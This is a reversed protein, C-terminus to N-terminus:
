APNGPAAELLKAVDLWSGDAFALRPATDQFDRFTISGGASGFSVRVDNGDRVATVEDRAIGEGLVVQGKHMMRSPGDQVFKIFKGDEILPKFSTVKVGSLDGAIIDDGDGKNYEIRYGYDAEPLLNITDNGTGGNFKSRFGGSVTLVDDGAGGFLQARGHAIITDNGDGGDAFGSAGLGGAVIEIHDDGDEGYVHGRDMVLFRDDGTGGYARGGNLLTFQDKGDGGRATGNYILALDDGEGLNVEGGGMYLVAKDNGAGADVTGHRYNYITDNGAGSSSTQNHYVHQEDDGDTGDVPAGSVAAPDPQGELWDVQAHLMRQVGYAIDSLRAMAANVNGAVEAPDQPTTPAPQPAQNYIDLSPKAETQGSSIWTRHQQALGDMNVGFQQLHARFRDATGAGMQNATYRFYHDAASRPPVIYTM